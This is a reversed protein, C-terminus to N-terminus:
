TKTSFEGEIFKPELQERPKEEVVDRNMMEPPAIVVIKVGDKKMADLEEESKSPAGYIRAGLEKFAQVAAMAIKADKVTVINGDKDLVLNGFKDLVPQEPSMVAIDYINDFIARIRSRSEKGLKGNPAAPQLMLNRLLRTVDQTKPMSKQQKKFKGGEGRVIKIPAGTKHHLVIEESTAPTKKEEPKEQIYEAEVSDAM